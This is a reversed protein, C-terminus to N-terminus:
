CFRFRDVDEEAKFMEFAGWQEKVELWVPRKEAGSLYRSGGAVPCKYMNNERGSTGKGMIMRDRAQSLNYEQRVDPCVDSGPFVVGTMHEYKCVKRTEKTLSIMTTM